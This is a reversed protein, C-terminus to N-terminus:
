SLVSKFERMPTRSTWMVVKDRQREFMIQWGNISHWGSPPSESGFASADIVLLHLLNGDPLHFCTLSAPRGRWAFARCGMTPMAEVQTPITRLRPAAHEDLFQQTKVLDPTLLDLPVNPDNRLMALADAQFNAVRAGAPALPWFQEKLLIGGLLLVAALALWSPLSRRKPFSRGSLQELISEKLGSSPVLEQLKATLAQDFAQSEQLWVALEPDKEAQAIAEALSPDDIRESSAPYASLFLKAEESTM